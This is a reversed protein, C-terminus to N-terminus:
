MMGEGMLDGSNGGGDGGSREVGEVSVGAREVEHGKDLRGGM